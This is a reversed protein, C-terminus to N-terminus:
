AELLPKPDKEILFQRLNKYIYAIEGSIGCLELMMRRGYAPTKHSKPRLFPCLVAGGFAM